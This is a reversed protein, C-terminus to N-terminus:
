RRKPAKPAPTPSRRGAAASRVLVPELPSLTAIWRDTIEQAAAGLGPPAVAELVRRATEPLAVVKPGV